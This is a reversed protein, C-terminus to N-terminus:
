CRATDRRDMGGIGLAVGQLRHRQLEGLDFDFVPRLLARAAAAARKVSCTIMSSNIRWSAHVGGFLQQSRAVRSACQLQQLLLHAARSGVGLQPGEQELQQGHESLPLTREILELDAALEIGARQRHHVGVPRRQLALGHALRHEGALGRRVHEPGAWPM